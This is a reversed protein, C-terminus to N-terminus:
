HVQTLKEKQYAELARISLDKKSDDVGKNFYDFLPSTEAQVPITGPFGSTSQVERLKSQFREEVQKNIISENRRDRVMDEYADTATQFKGPNKIIHGSIDMLGIDESFDRQHRLKLNMLEDMKSLSRWEMEKQLEPRIKTAYSEIAKNVEPMFTENFKALDVTGNQLGAASEVPDLLKRLDQGQEAWAHLLREGGEVRESLKPNKEILAKLQEGDEEPLISLLEKLDLAM